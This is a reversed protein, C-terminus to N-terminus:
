LKIGGLSDTYLIYNLIMNYNDSKSIKRKEFVVGAKVKWSGEKNLILIDEFIYAKKKCINGITITKVDFSEKACLENEMQEDLMEAFIVPMKHSYVTNGTDLFADYIYERNGIKLIVVYNLSSKTVNTSYMKWLKLLIIKGAFYVLAYILIKNIGILKEISFLSEIVVLIGINVISVMFFELVLKIYLKFKNPKFAIYVMLFALFFKSAVYNLERLKLVLMLVIYVSSLISAILIRIANCKIKSISSVERLLIYDLIVNEIFLYDIYVTM